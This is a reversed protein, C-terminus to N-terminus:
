RASVLVAVLTGPGAARLDRAAAAVRARPLTRARHVLLLVDCAAALSRVESAHEHGPLALVLREYSEAAEELFRRMATSALLDGPARAARGGPLVALGATRTPRVLARWDPGGDLHQALGPEPEVGFRAALSPGSALRHLDAEVLLTNRGELAFSLALEAAISASPEEGDVATAGFVSVARGANSPLASRLARFAEAERGGPASELVLSGNGAIRPLVAVLDAGAIEALEAASHIRGRRPERALTWVIGLSLALLWGLALTRPVQPSALETPPVAPDILEAWTEASSRTIEAGQLSKVLDPVLERHIELEIEAQAIERAGEPLQGLRDRLGQGQSELERGRSRLGELRDVLQARTWALLESTATRNRRVLPHEELLEAGLSAYQADLEAIRELYGATVPDVLVGTTLTSDLRALAHADGSDLASVIEELAKESLGLQLREIELAAMEEILSGATGELYLLEPRHEQLRVIERQAEEFRRFQEDLLGRIYDVTKSARRQGRAQLSDLYNRCLANATRAARRPDSDEIAVEVVGSGLGTERLHIKERLEELAEHRPFHELGFASGAFEGRAELRLVLGRYELPGRPVYALEQPERDALGLSELLGAGSLRVRSDDLFEVRVRDPSDPGCEEVLALLEREPLVLPIWPPPPDFLARAALAVPRLGEDEVLTSLGLHRELAPDWGGREDRGDALVEEALTRSGLVELESATAPASALSALLTLDGLLGSPTDEEILITARARFLPRARAMWATALLVGCLSWALLRPWARALCALMEPLTAARAQSAPIPSM